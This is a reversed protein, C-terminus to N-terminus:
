TRRGEDDDDDDDEVEDEYDDEYGDEETQTEQDNHLESVHDIIDDLSTEDSIYNPCNNDERVEDDDEYEDEEDDDVFGGGNEAGDELEGDSDTQLLLAGPVITDEISSYENSSNDTSNTPIDTGHSRNTSAITDSKTFTNDVHYTSLYEPDTLNDDQPGPTLPPPTFTSPISPLCPPYTGDESTENIRIRKPSMLSADSSSKRRRTFM